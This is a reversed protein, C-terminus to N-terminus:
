KKIESRGTSPNTLHREHLKRQHRVMKLVHGHRPDQRQRRREQRARRGAPAAAPAAATTTPIQRAASAASVNWRAPTKVLSWRRQRSLTSFVGREARAQHSRPMAYTM